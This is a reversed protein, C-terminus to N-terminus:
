VNPSILARTGGVTVFLDRGLGQVDGELLDRGVVITGNGEFYVRLFASSAIGLERALTDAPLLGDRGHAVFWRLARHRRGLQSAVEVFEAALMAADDDSTFGHHRHRIVY